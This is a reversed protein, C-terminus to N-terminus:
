HQFQTMIGGHNSFIKFIAGRLHKSISWNWSNNCKWIEFIDKGLSFKCIENELWFWKEVPLFIILKGDPLDFWFKENRELSKLLFSVTFAASKIVAGIHREEETERFAEEEKENWEAKVIM